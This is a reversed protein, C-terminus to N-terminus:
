NRRRCFNNSEERPIPCTTLNYVFEALSTVVKRPMKVPTELTLNSIVAFVREHLTPGEVWETFYHTLLGQRAGLYKPTPIYSCYQQVLSMAAFGYNSNQVDLLGAVMKDAWCVGDVFCIKATIGGGGAKFEVLSAPIENRSSSAYSIARNVELQFQNMGGVSHLIWNVATIAPANGLASYPSELSHALTILTKLFVLFLFFELVIM